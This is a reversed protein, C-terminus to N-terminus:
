GGSLHSFDVVITSSCASTIKRLPAAAHPRFLHRSLPGPAQLLELGDAVAQRLGIVPFIPFM